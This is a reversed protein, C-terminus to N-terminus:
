ASDGALALPFPSRELLVGRALRRPGRVFRCTAAHDRPELTQGDFGDPARHSEHGFGFTFQQFPGENRRKEIRTKRGEPQRERTRPPSVTRRGPFAGCTDTTM